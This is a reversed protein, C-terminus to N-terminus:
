RGKKPKKVSVTLGLLKMLLDLSRLSLGGLGSMFRSMVAEHIGIKQCIQRRSLSSDDIATRVQDSFSAMASM